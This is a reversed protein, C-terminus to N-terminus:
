HRMGLLHLLESGSGASVGRAADAALASYGAVDAAGRSVLSVEGTFDFSLWDNGASATETSWILVVLLCDFSCKSHLRVGLHAAEIESEALLLLHFEDRIKM